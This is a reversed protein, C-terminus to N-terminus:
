RKFVVDGFHGHDHLFAEFQKSSYAKEPDKAIHKDFEEQPINAQAQLISNMKEELYEYFGTPFTYGRPSITGSKAILSPRMEKQLDDQAKILGIIIFTPLKTYILLWDPNGVIDEASARLM